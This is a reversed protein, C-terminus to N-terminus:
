KRGLHIDTNKKIKIKDDYLDKCHFKVIKQLYSNTGVRTKLRWRDEWLFWTQVIFNCFVTKNTNNFSRKWCTLKFSFVSAMVTFMTHLILLVFIDTHSNFQFTKYQYAILIYAPPYTSINSVSQIAESPIFQCIKTEIIHYNETIM